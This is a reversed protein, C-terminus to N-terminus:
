INLMNSYLKSDKNEWAFHLRGQKKKSTIRVNILTDTSSMKEM